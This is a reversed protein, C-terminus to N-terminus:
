RIKQILNTLVSPLLTKLRAIILDRILGQFIRKIQDM